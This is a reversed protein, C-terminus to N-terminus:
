SIFIASLFTVANVAAVAESTASKACMMVSTAVPAVFLFIVTAFKRLLIGPKIPKESVGWVTVLAVAIFMVPVRPKSTVVVALAGAM